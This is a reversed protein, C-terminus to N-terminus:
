RKLALDAGCSFGDGNGWNGNGEAGCPSGKSYENYEGLEKVLDQM